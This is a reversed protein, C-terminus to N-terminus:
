KKTQEAIQSLLEIIRANQGEVRRQSARTSQMWVWCLVAIVVTGIAALLLL